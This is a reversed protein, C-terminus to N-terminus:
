PEKLLLLATVQKVHSSCKYFAGSSLRHAM